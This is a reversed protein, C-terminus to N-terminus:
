RRPLIRWMLDADAAAEILASRNEPATDNIIQLGMMKVMLETKKMEIYSDYTMKMHKM